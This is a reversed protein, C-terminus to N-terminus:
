CAPVLSGIIGQGNSGVPREIYKPPVGRWVKELMALLPALNKCRLTVEMVVALSAASADAWSGRLAFRFVRSAPTYVRMVGYGASLIGSIDEPENAIIYVPSQNLPGKNSLAEMRLTTTTFTPLATLAGTASGNTAPMLTATEDNLHVSVAVEDCWLPYANALANPGGVSGYKKFPWGLDFRESILAITAPETMQQQTIGYYYIPVEILKDPEVLDSM